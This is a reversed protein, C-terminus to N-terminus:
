SHQEVTEKTKGALSEKLVQQFHERQQKGDFDQLAGGAEFHRIFVQGTAYIVAGATASLSVGGGLTGIGPIVKTLSSLWMLATTPLSGSLLAVLTSNGREKNFEVGYLTSLGHLLNLQIGTLAAVDLVPVPVTSLAMGVLMHKRVMGQAQGYKSDDTAETKAILPSPEPQASLAQPQEQEETPKDDQTKKKWFTINAFKRISQALVAPQQEPKAMLASDDEATEAAPSPEPHNQVPNLQEQGKDPENGQKKKKWSAISTFKSISQAFIAPRQQPKAMLSGDEATEVVPSPEPRDPLSQPQEEGPKNDSKTKKWSIIKAFKNAQRSLSIPQPEPKTVQVRDELTQSQALEEDKDDHAEKKCSIINDAPVVPQQESKEVPLENEATEIAPNPEPLIALPQSPEQEVPKVWEKEVAHVPMGEAKSLSVAEGILMARKEQLRNLVYDVHTCLSYFVPMHSLPVSVQKALKGHLRTLRTIEQDIVALDFSDLQRAVQHLEKYGHYTRSRIHWQYLSRGGKVLLLMFILLPILIIEFPDLKAILGFPFM